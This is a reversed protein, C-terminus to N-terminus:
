ADSEDSSLDSDDTDLEELAAQKQAAAARAAAAAAAAKAAAVKAAAAKAAVAAAAAAAEAAAEDESEDSSLDSDDAEPVEPPQPQPAPAAAPAPAPPPTPAPAPTPASAPAPAPVQDEKKAEAKAEEKVQAEEKKVEKLDKQQNKLEKHEANVGTSDAATNMDETAVAAPKAVEASGERSGAMGNTLKDPQGAMDKSKQRDEPLIGTIGVKITKKEDETLKLFEGLMDNENSMDLDEFDGCYEAENFIQPTLPVKAQGRPTANQTMYEKADEQGPDTIDIATYPINKSELIMLARQQNKKVEQSCSILSVYVKIVM